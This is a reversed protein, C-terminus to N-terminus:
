RAKRYATTGAMFAPTGTSPDRFIGLPIPGADGRVVWRNFPDLEMTATVKPIKPRVNVECVITAGDARVQAYGGASGVYTGSLELASPTDTMQTPALEPVAGFLSRLVETAILDNVFPAFANVGVALATASDAHYRFGTSQGMFPGNYGYWGPRFEACGLGASLPLLEARPGGSMHPLKLKQEQAQLATGRTVFGSGVDESRAHILGSCLRLQDATSLTFDFISQRWFAGLTFRTARVYGNRSANLEHPLARAAFENSTAMGTQIGLPGCLHSQALTAAAQGTARAIIEAVLALATPSFSFVTGPKFFFEATSLFAVLKDWSYAQQVEPSSLNPSQHGGAHCLLHWLLVHRGVQSGNLEPLYREIPASLDLRQEAVLELVLLALLVKSTSGMDFHADCNMAANSDVALTGASASVVTGNAIISVCAGPVKTRQLLSQLFAELHRQYAFLESNNNSAM